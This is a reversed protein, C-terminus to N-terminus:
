KTVIVKGTMGSNAHPICVYVYTGPVTFTHSFEAGPLMFGSDFGDAGAPVASSSVSHIVKGTNKWEVTDGVKITVNDQIFATPADRMTVVVTPKGAESPLPVLLNAAGAVLVATLIALLRRNHIRM